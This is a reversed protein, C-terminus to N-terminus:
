LAQWKKTYNFYLYLFNCHICMEILDRHLYCEIKVTRSNLSPAVLDRCLCEVLQVIFVASLELSRYVFNTKQVRANMIALFHNPITSFRNAKIFSKIWDSLISYCLPGIRALYRPLSFIAWDIKNYLDMSQAVQHDRM